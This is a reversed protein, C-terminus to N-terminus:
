KVPRSLMFGLGIHFATLWGVPEVYDYKSLIQGKFLKEISAKGIVVFRGARYNYEVSNRISPGFRNNYIDWKKTSGDANNQITSGPVNSNGFGFTISNFLANRTNKFVSIGPGIFFRSYKYKYVRVENELPNVFNVEEKFNWSAFESEVNFLFKRYSLNYGVFYGHNLKNKYKYTAHSTTISNNFREVALYGATITHNLNGQGILIQPLICFLLIYFFKM